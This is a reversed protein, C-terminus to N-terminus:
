FVVVSLNRITTSPLLQTTASISYPTSTGMTGVRVWFSNNTKPYQPTDLVHFFFKDSNSSSNGQIHVQYKRVTLPTVFSFKLAPLTSSDKDLYLNYGDIFNVSDCVTQTNPSFQHYGTNCWASVIKGTQMAPTAVNNSM